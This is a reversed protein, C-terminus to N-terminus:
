VCDSREKVRREGGQIRLGTQEASEKVGEEGGRSRM